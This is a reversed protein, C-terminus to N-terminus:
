EQSNNKVLLPSFISTALNFDLGLLPRPRKQENKSTSSSISSATTTPDAQVLDQEVPILVVFDKRPLNEPVIVEKEPSFVIENAESAVIPIINEIGDEICNIGPNPVGDKVERSISVAFMCNPLNNQFKHM